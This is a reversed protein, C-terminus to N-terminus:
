LFDQYRENFPTNKCYDEVRKKYEQASYQVNKFYYQANILNASL